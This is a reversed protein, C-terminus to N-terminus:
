YGCLARVAERVDRKSYFGQGLTFLELLERVPNQNSNHRQIARGNLSAQLAPDLVM